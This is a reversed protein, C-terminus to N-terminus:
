QPGPPHTLAQEIQQHVPKWQTAPAVHHWYAMYGVVGWLVAGILLGVAGFVRFAPLGRLRLMPVAVLGIVGMWVFATGSLPPNHTLGLQYVQIGVLVAALGAFAAYIAVPLLDLGAVLVFVLGLLLIGFFVAMEGYLINFAGPLPWTFVMHLGTALSLFGAMALGPVWRRERPSDADFFLWCALLVLGAVQNVLMLTVYDIDM